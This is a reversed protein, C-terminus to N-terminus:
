KEHGIGDKPRKAVSLSSSVQVRKVGAKVTKLRRDGYVVDDQDEYAVRRMGNAPNLTTNGTVMFTSRLTWWSGPRWYCHFLSFARKM